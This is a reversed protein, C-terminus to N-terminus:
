KNKEIAEDIKNKVDAYEETHEQKSAIAQEQVEFDTNPRQPPPEMKKPQKTYHFFYVIINAIIILALGPLLDTPIM